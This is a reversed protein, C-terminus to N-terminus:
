FKELERAAKKIKDIRAKYKQKIKRRAMEIEQAQAEMIKDYEKALYQLTM